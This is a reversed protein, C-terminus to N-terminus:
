RALHRPAPQADPPLRRSTNCASWCRRRWAASMPRRRGEGIVQLLQHAVFVLVIVVVLVSTGLGGAPSRALCRRTAASMGPIRADQADEADPIARRAAAAQQPQHPARKPEGKLSRHLLAPTTSMPASASAPRTRRSERLRRRLLGDPHVRVRRSPASTSPPVSTTAPAVRGTASGASSSGPDRAGGTAGDGSPRSLSISPLPPSSATSLPRSVSRPSTTATLTNRRPSPRGSRRGRPVCRRSASGGWCRCPRRRRTPRRYRRDSRRATTPSHNSLQASRRILGPPRDGGDGVREAVGVRPDDVAVHLRGVDTRGSPLTHQGVEADGRRRRGALGSKILASPCATRSAGSCADPSHAEAGRVHAAASVSYACRDPRFGNLRRVRDSGSSFSPSPAAATRARRSGGLVQGCALSRRDSGRCRGSAASSRSEAARRGRRLRIGRAAPRRRDLRPRRCREGPGAPASGSASSPDRRGVAATRASRRGPKDARLPRKRERGHERTTAQNRGSAGSRHPATTAHRRKPVQRSAAPRNHIPM